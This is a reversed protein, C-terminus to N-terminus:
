IQSVARYGATKLRGEYTVRQVRLKKLVETARLLAM